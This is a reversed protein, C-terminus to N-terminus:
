TEKTHRLANEICNERPRILKLIQDHRQIYLTKLDHGIDNAGIPAWVQVCSRLAITAPCISIWAKLVKPQQADLQNM